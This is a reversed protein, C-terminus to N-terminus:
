NGPRVTIVNGTAANTVVSINNIPDYYRITGPVNGPLPIGSQIAQTTVSPPIGQNQM